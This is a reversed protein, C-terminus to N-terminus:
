STPCNRSSFSRNGVVCRRWDATTGRVSGIICCDSKIKTTCKAILAHPEGVQLAVNEVACAHNPDSAGPLFCVSLCHCYKVHNDSPRVLFSLQRSHM